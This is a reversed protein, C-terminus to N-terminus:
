NGTLKYGIIDKAFETDNINTNLKLSITELKAVVDGSKNYWEEKLLIGTNKEVWWKFRTSNYRKAYDNNFKGDIIYVDFGQYKETGIIAWKNYDELMGLISEQNFLSEKAYTMLSPDYKYMYVTEGKENTSYREKMESSVPKVIGKEVKGRAYTKDNENLQTMSDGDFVMECTFGSNYIVKQYSAPDEKMRIKYEVKYGGDPLNNDTRIFSGEASDFYDISNGMKNHLEDKTINIMNKGSVEKDPVFGLGYGVILLCVVFLSYKFQKKM